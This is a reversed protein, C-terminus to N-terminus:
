GKKENWILKNIKQFGNSVETKKVNKFNREFTINRIRSITKYWPEM